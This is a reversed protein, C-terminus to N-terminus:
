FFIVKNDALVPKPFGLETQESEEDKVSIEAVREVIEGLVIDTLVYKEGGSSEKETLESLPASTSAGENTTEVNKKIKVVKAAPQFNVNTEKERYFAAQMEEIDKESDTHKPRTNM